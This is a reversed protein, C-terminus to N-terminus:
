KLNSENLAALMNQTRVKLTEPLNQANLIDAYIEQAQTINNERIALMAKMEKATNVFKGNNALLPELLANIEEAPAKELKYSVLKIVAAERLSQNSDEDDIYEQLATCAEEIKNQTLLINVMQMKALDRYIGDNKEAMDKFIALSGDYDGQIQLNYAQSYTNAWAQARKNHWAVLSEYSVACTLAVVVIIMAIVGYKKWFKLMKENKLEENIEQFLIDDAAADLKEKKM